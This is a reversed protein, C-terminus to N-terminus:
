GTLTLKHGTIPNSKVNIKQNVKLGTKRLLCAQWRCPSQDGEHLRIVEWGGDIANDLFGWPSSGELTLMTQESHHEPCPNDLSSRSTPFTKCFMSITLIEWHYPCGSIAWPFSLVSIEWSCGQAKPHLSSTVRKPACKRRENEVNLRHGNQKGKGFPRVKFYLSSSLYKKGTLM